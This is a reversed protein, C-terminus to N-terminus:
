DIGLLTGLFRSPRAQYLNGAKSTRVRCRTVLLREKARTVAVYFLRREENIQSATNSRFDPLGGDTLGVLAVADFELGKSAHISGIWVANKPKQVPETLAQYAINWDLSSGTIRLRQARLRQIVRRVDDFFAAGEDNDDVITRELDLAASELARLGESQPEGLASAIAQAQPFCAGFRDVIQVITAEPSVGFMDTLERRTVPNEPSSLWRLVPLLAQFADSSFHNQRESPFWYEIKSAALAVETQALLWRSRALVAISRIRPDDRCEDIWRVVRRGEDADSRVTEFAVGSSPAFRTNTRIAEALTRIDDPNRWNKQLTVVELDYADALIKSIGDPVGLWGNIRQDQDIFVEVSTTKPGILQALLDLQLTSTDQAEDIIINRFMRQYHSRVNPQGALLESAKLLLVDFDVSGTSHLYDLYADVIDEFAIERSIIENDVTTSRRLRSSIADLLRQDIELDVEGEGTLALRLAMVRAGDTDLVTFGALGILHGYARLVSEAFSHFTAIVTPPHVPGALEQVYGTMAAVAARSHTLCLTGASGDTRAKVLRSVRHAITTTKGCGPRAVVLFRGSDADVLQRQIDSLEIM